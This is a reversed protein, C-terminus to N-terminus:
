HAELSTYYSWIQHFEFFLQPDSSLVITKQLDKCLKCLQLLFVIYLKQLLFFYFFSTMEPGSTGALGRDLCKSIINDLSNDHLFYIQEFIQVIIDRIRQVIVQIHVKFYEKPRIQSNSYHYLDFLQFKCNFIQHLRIM